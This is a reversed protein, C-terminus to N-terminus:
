NLRFFQLPAAPEELNNVGPNRIHERGLFFYFLIITTVAILIIGSVFENKLDMTKKPPGSADGSGECGAVKTRWHCRRLAKDYVQAVPCDIIRAIGGSCTLFQSKCNGISHFGDTKNKCDNFQSSAAITVLVLLVVVEKKM